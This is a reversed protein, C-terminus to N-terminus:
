LTVTHGTAAATTIADILELAAVGDAADPTTPGDERIARVFAEVQREYADGDPLIPEIIGGASYARVTSARRYFPFHTDVRVSGEAGFVEIGEAPVGPVDVSLTLTGMAGNAMTLLATWAQDRGYGRHQATVTAVDGLLYRVTDLVHAGHTALLYRQRDAKIEAEKPAAAEDAFVVPFLAAEIQPRMDGIRYWVDFTRAQGLSEAVFRRAFELGPDHRKMAGVQLKLATGTVQVALARGQTADAALPKEVLVHKGAGLAASALAYHFRDPAAILVAEVDPDDFIAETATYAAPVGYRGAVAEALGPGPDSVAVLEVGDAKELAPLHAVQAIRGAGILALRVRESM